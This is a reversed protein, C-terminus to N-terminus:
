SLRLLLRRQPYRGRSFTSKPRPWGCVDLNRICSDVMTPNTARANQEPTRASVGVSTGGEAVITALRRGGGDSQASLRPPPTSASGEWRPEEEIKNRGRGNM